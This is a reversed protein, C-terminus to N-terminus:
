ALSTKSSARLALATTIAMTVVLLGFGLYIHADHTLGFGIGSAIHLFHDALLYFMSLGLLLLLGMQKVVSAGQRVVTGYPLGWGWTLLLLGPVALFLLPSGPGLAFFM